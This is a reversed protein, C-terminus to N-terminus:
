QGNKCSNDETILEMATIRADNATFEAWWRNLDALYHKTIWIRVFRSACVLTVVAGDPHPTKTTIATNGLWSRCIQKTYKAEFATLVQDWADQLEPVHCAPPKSLHKGGSFGGELFRQWM